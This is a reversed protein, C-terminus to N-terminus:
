IRQDYKQILRLLINVGEPLREPVVRDLNDTPRHFGTDVQRKDYTGLTATPIGAAMFSAGDSNLPGAPLPAKGTVELVAQSALEIVDSSTAMLRLVSGDQEWFVYEGDQAMIELNLAIAPFPWARSRIYARSGQM